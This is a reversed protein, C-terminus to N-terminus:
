SSSHLLCPWHSYHWWGIFHNVPSSFWFRWSSRAKKSSGGGQVNKMYVLCSRTWWSTNSCCSSSQKQLSLQSVCCLYTFGFSFALFSSSVRLIEAQISPLTLSIKNLFNMILNTCSLIAKVVVLHHGLILYHSLKQQDKCQMISSYPGIWVDFNENVM